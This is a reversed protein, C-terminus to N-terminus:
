GGSSTTTKATNTPGTPTGTKVTGTQQPPPTTVTLPKKTKAHSHGCGALLGATLCLVLALARSWRSRM